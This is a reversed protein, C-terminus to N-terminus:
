IKNKMTIKTISFHSRVSLFFNLKFPFLCAFMIIICIIIVLNIKNDHLYKFFIPFIASHFHLWDAIKNNNNNNRNWKVKYKCVCVCVCMHVGNCVVCGTWRCCYVLFDLHQQSVFALFFRSLVLCVRICGCRNGPYERLYKM